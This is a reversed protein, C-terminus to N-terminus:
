SLYDSVEQRRTANDEFAIIPKPIIDAGADRNDLNEVTNLNLLDETNALQKNRNNLDIVEEFESEHPVQESRSASLSSDVSFSTGLSDNTTMSISSDVLEQHVGGNHVSVGESSQIVTEGKSDSSNSDEESEISDSKELTLEGQSSSKVRLGSDSGESPVYDGNEPKGDNKESDSGDSKESDLKDLNLRGKKGLLNQLLPSKFKPTESGGNQSKNEVLKQLLPSKFKSAPTEQPKGGEGNADELNFSVGNESSKQDDLLKESSGTLSGILSSSLSSTMGESRLNETSASMPSDSKVRKMIMELRKKREQRELEDKKAKEQREREAREAEERAKQEAEEKARREQELREQEEKKRLEEAEIAKRLREEEAQRALAALQQAEEEMRRQEEEERRQREEEELRLQEQRQREIEAEREAKERAQRRKEALKNKYEELELEKKSKAASSPTGPKPSAARATIPEPTGPKPSLARTASKEPTGPATPPTKQGKPEPTGPKPSPTKPKEEEPEPSSAPSVAPSKEPEIDTVKDEAVTIEKTEADHSPVESKEPVNELAEKEEKSESEPKQDLLAKEKEPTTAVAKKAKVEKKADNSVTKTPTKTDPQKVPTQKRVRPSPAKLTPATPLITRRVVKKESAKEQKNQEDKERKPTEKKLPTKEKKTLDKSLDRRTVEKPTEKKPTDKDKKQSDVDKKPFLRPTPPKSRERPRSLRDTSKSRSDASKKVNPSFAPTSGAVSAPRPKRPTTRERLKVPERHSLNMTSKPRTPPPGSPAMMSEAPRERSILNSSSSSLDTSRKNYLASTSVSLHKSPPTGGFTGVQGMLKNIDICCHRRVSCASYARRHPIYSDADSGQPSRRYITSHSSSRRRELPQCVTRPARSGFGIVYSIGGKRSSMQAKWQEYRTLRDNSKQIIAEKRARDQNELKRRREEVALRREEDRRRLEEIKMRRLELQKERKEQALRQQERMEELKKARDEAMKKQQLRIREEREKDKEKRQADVVRGNIVVYSRGSAVLVTGKLDDDDNDEKERTDPSKRSDDLSSGKGSSESHDDGTHPRPSGRMLESGSDDMRQRKEAPSKCQVGANDGGATIPVEEVRLSHDLSDGSWSMPDISDMPSGAGAVKDVEMMHDPNFTSSEATNVNDPNFSHHDVDKEIQVSNTKKASARKSKRLRPAMFKLSFLGTCCLFAM